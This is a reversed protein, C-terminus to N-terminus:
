SRSLTYIRTGGGDRSDVYAIFVAGSVHNVRVVSSEVWGSTSLVKLGTWTATSTGTYCRIGNGITLLTYLRGTTGDISFATAGTGTTIRHKVWSGSADTGYYTGDDSEPGPEVCGGPAPSRTWVLHPKDAGDLALKPAWDRSTSGGVKSSSLSSGTYIGFRLGAATEYVVRARGDSGVALSGREIAGPILYRHFSAGSRTEYYLKDGNAVILHITSGSVGLSQLTDAM